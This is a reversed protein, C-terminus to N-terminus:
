SFELLISSSSWVHVWSIDYKDRKDTFARNHKINSLEFLFTYNMLCPGTTRVKAYQRSQIGIQSISLCNYAKVGTICFMSPIPCEMAQNGVKELVKRAYSKRFIWIKPSKQNAFFPTFNYSYLHAKLCSIATQM